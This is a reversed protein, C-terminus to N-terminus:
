GFDEKEAALALLEPASYLLRRLDVSPVHLKRAAATINVNCAILTAIVREHELDRCSEPVRVRNPWM